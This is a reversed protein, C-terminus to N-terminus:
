HRNQRLAGGIGHAREGDRLGLKYWNLCVMDSAKLKYSPDFHQSHVMLNIQDDTMPLAVPQASQLAADWGKEFGHLAIGRLSYTHIAGGLGDLWQTLNKLLEAKQAAREGQEPQAHESPQAPQPAAIADARVIVADICGHECNTGEEFWEWDDPEGDEGKFAHFRGRALIASNAIAEGERAQEQLAARLDDIEAIMADNVEEVCAHIHMPGLAPCTEELREQWTKIPGQQNRAQLAALLVARAEDSHQSGPIHFAYRDALAMIADTKPTTM